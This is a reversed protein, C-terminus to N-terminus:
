RVGKAGELESGISVGVEPLVMAQPEAGTSDGARAYLGAETTAGDLEEDM